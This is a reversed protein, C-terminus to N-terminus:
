RPFHQTETIKGSPEEVKAESTKPPTQCWPWGLRVQLGNAAILPGANLALASKWEKGSWRSSGTTFWGGHILELKNELSRRGTSCDVRRLVYKGVNWYSRPDSDWQGNKCCGRSRYWEGAWKSEPNGLDSVQGARQELLCRDFSNGEGWCKGPCEGEGEFSWLEALCLLSVRTEKRGRNNLRKLFLHLLGEMGTFSGKQQTQKQTQRKSGAKRSDPLSINNKQKNTRLNEKKGPM